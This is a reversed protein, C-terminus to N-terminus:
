VVEPKLSDHVLRMRERQKLYPAWRDQILSQRMGHRSRDYDCVSVKVWMNTM